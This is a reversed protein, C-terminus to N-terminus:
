QSLIIDKTFSLILKNDVIECQDGSYGKRCICFFKHELLMYNFYSICQGGNQCTSNDNVQCVINSLLCRPGFKNTPCVCVSQNNASVGRCVSDFACTCLHQITCYRGSWGSDCQCFTFNNPNNSYKVCKGHICQDNFCRQTKNDSRPVDVLFALRQVPLFPFTLPLLVSGRYSLSVKEYFDIHLAYQKTSNKPRTSYLLYINFKIKCHRVSSYIIQEYSHIIREDSNDILSIVITFLTEWSDSLALFKITLSIRQNQYQCQSGYYSPPCLCTDKTSNKNLWVRLDLGRNCRPQHQDFIKINSSSSFIKNEINEMQSNVSTILQDLKFYKIGSPWFPIKYNCLFHEVDSIKRRNPHQCISYNISLTRNKTCFQEDDGYQCQKSGDCLYSPSICSQVSSNKCYFNFKHLDLQNNTRCLTPEDTAGLCDVHGDNAKDIPLCLFRNTNPSVCLHSNSSCNLTSHSYCGSEDEGNPCNWINNCRTYINNCKWQECETEDTQNQEAITIPMLEIFGDCIHQFLINKKFYDMHVDEDECRGMQAYPCDCKGNRILYQPIYKDILQCKFQNQKMATNNIVSINEDDM